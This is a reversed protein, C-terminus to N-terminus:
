ITSQNLLQNPFALCLFVTSYNFLQNSQDSENLQNLLSPRVSFQNSVRVWGRGENLSLSKKHDERGSRPLSNFPPPSLSLGSDPFPSSHFASPSNFLQNLTFLFTRLCNRIAFPLLWYHTILSSHFVLQNTSQSLRVSLQNSVRM